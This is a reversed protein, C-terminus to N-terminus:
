TPLEINTKTNENSVLKRRAKPTTPKINNLMDLYNNRGDPSDLLSPNLVVDAEESKEVFDVYDYVYVIM